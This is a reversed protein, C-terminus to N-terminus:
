GESTAPGGTMPEWGDDDELLGMSQEQQQAIEQLFRYAQEEQTPVPSTAQIVSDTIDVTMDSCAPLTGVVRLKERLPSTDAIARWQSIYRKIPEGSSPSVFSGLKTSSLVRPMESGDISAVAFSPRTGQIGLRELRNELFLAFKNTLRRTAESHERQKM